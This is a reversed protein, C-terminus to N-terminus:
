WEARSATSLISPLLRSPSLSWTSGVLLHLYFRFFTLKNSPRPLLPGEGLSLHQVHLLYPWQYANSVFICMVYLSHHTRTQLFHVSSRCQQNRISKSKVSQSVSLSQHHVSKLHIADENLCLIEWFISSIFSFAYIRQPLQTSPLNAACILWFLYCRMDFTSSLLSGSINDDYSLIKELYVWLSNSLVFSSLKNIVSFEPHKFVPSSSLMAWVSLLNLRCIDPPSTHWWEGSCQVFFPVLWLNGCPSLTPFLSGWIEPPFFDAATSWHVNELEFKSVRLDSTRFKM